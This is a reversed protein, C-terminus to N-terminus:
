VEEGGQGGEYGVDGAKREGGVVDGFLLGAVLGDLCGLQVVYVPNIEEWCHEAPVVPTWSSIRMVSVPRWARTLCDVYM